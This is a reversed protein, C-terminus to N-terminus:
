ILPIITKVQFFITQQKKQANNQVLCRFIKKECFIQLVETKTKFTVSRNREGWKM